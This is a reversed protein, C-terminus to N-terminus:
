IAFNCKSEDKYGACGYAMKNETVAKGCLPCKGLPKNQFTARHTDTKVCRSIYAAIDKEFALPDSLLKQEWETTQTVSAMKALEANKVLQGILFQGRETAYLKKKEEFVYQRIFLTKIIEARTAPTGLGALKGDAQENNSEGHPHEMFALLTDIAFEKKPSTRKELIKCGTISCEKENFTPVEQEENAETDTVNNSVAQKWGAQIVEKIKSAFVYQAINFRISKENYIFDPMCVIFFSNLVINYVNREKETASEPIVALPILAHHDELKASNFIHKNGASILATDCL